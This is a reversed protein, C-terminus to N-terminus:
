SLPFRQTPWQIYWQKAGGHSHLGGGGCVRYRLTVDTLDYHTRLPDYFNTFTRIVTNAFGSEARTTIFRSDYSPWHVLLGPLWPHSASLPDSFDFMPVFWLSLNTFTTVTRVVTNTFGMCTPTNPSVLIMFLWNVLCGLARPLSFLGSLRLSILYVCLGLHGQRPLFRADLLFLSSFSRQFLLPHLWVWALHDLVNSLYLPRSSIHRRLHLSNWCSIVSRSRHCCSFVGTLTVVELSADHSLDLLHYVEVHNLHWNNACDFPNSRHCHSCLWLFIGRPLITCSQHVSGLADGLLCTSFCVCSVQFPVCRLLIRWTGM